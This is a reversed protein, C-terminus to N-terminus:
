GGQSLRESVAPTRGGKSEIEGAELREALRNFDDSTENRPREPPELRISIDLFPSARISRSVSAMRMSGALPISMVAM